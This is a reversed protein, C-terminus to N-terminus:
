LLYFVFILFFGIFFSYAPNNKLINLLNILYKKKWSNFSSNNDPNFNANDIDFPTEHSKFSGVKTIKSTNKADPINLNVYTQIKLYQRAYKAIISAFNINKLSQFENEFNRDPKVPNKIPFKTKSFNLFTDYFNFQSKGGYESVLIILINDVKVFLYIM